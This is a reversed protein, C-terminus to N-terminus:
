DSSLVFARIEKKRWRVARGIRVPRPLKSARHLRRITRVSIGWLRSLDRASLLELDADSGAQESCDLTQDRASLLELEDNGAQESSAPTQLPTILDNDYV